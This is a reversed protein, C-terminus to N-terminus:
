ASKRQRKLRVINIITKIFMMFLVILIGGLSLATISLVIGLAIIKATLQSGLFATAGLIFIGSGIAGVTAAAYFGSVGLLGAGVIGLLPLIMLFLIVKVIRKIWKILPNQVKNRNEKMYGEFSTDKDTEQYKEQDAKSEQKTHEYANNEYEHNNFQEEYQYPTVIIENSNSTSDGIDQSASCIDEHIDYLLSSAESESHDHNVRNPDEQEESNNRIVDEEDLVNYSRYDRKEM